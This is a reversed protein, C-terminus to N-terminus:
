RIEGNHTEQPIPIIACAHMRFSDLNLGQTRRDETLIAEPEEEKGAFFRTQVDMHM